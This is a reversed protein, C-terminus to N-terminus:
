DPRLQNPALSEARPELVADQFMRKGVNHNSLRSRANRPPWAFWLLPSLTLNHNSLAPAEVVSVSLTSRRRRQSMGTKDATFHLNRRAARANLSAM